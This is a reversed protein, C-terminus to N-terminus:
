VYEAATEVPITVRGFKELRAIERVHSQRIAGDEFWIYPVSLPIRSTIDLATVDDTLDELAGRVVFFRRFRSGVTDWWTFWTNNTDPVTQMRDVVIFRWSLENEFWQNNTTAVVQGPASRRARTDKVLLGDAGLRGSTSVPKGPSWLLPSSDPSVHVTAAALNGTFGLLDRLVFNSVGLDWNDISFDTANALRTKLSRTTFATSGALQTHTDLMTAFASMLSLLATAHDLYYDGAPFALDETTANATVRVTTAPVSPRSGILVSTSTPM